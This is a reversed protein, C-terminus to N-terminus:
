SRDRDVAAHLDPFVKAVRAMLYSGYTGHWQHVNAGDWRREADDTAPAMGPLPGVEADWGPDFFFPFSLRGRGSTNRVRHPTSRYRGRTMRDLMDGINCVFVDPDPPVDIWDHRSEVQLGGCDDQRLVTLLGYDTHEGVGWDDDSGPPYHFIRFLTIPEATLHHEFWGDGLDLALGLGRMLVRCLDTMAAMWELVVTRLGAPEAPFLNPGHLPRGAVVRPDDPPLEDGFYLGEKRDPRGSTLEGGVPFWGRWARGGHSMAIRAKEREPLAFFARAQLELEASLAPDVGHGSICFFGVERCAEDLAAAVDAAGRGTRLPGLDIVPVHM